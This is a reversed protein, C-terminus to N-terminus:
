NAECEKEHEKYAANCCILTDCEPCQLNYEEMTCHECMQMVEKMTAVLLAGRGSERM